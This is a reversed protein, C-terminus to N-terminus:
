RLLSGCGRRGQRVMPLDYEQGSSIRESGEADNAPGRRTASSPNSTAGGTRRMPFTFIAAKSRIKRARGHGDGGPKLRMFMRHSKCNRGSVFLEGTM